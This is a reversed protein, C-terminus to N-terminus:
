GRRFISIPTYIVTKNQRDLFETKGSTILQKGNLVLIDLNLYHRITDPSSVVLDAILTVTKCHRTPNENIFYKGKYEGGVDDNMWSYTFHGDELFAIQQFKNSDAIIKGTVTSFSDLKWIGYLEKVQGQKNQQCSFCVVFILFALFRFTM